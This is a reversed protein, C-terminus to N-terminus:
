KKYFQFMNLVKGQLKKDTTYLTVVPILILVLLFGSVVKKLDFHM